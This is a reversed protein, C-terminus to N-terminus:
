ETKDGATFTFTVDKSDNDALTVTQTQRGLREHWAEVTYTGAPVNKLEFTGGGSTVAFYPHELIGAYASMWGHVDCKFRVMVEPAAFSTTNKMGQIPQGFNFGRNASAVANVNHLTPDSNSIDIPQGVQAGFVRPRYRCGQQDLTVVETPTDFYYAGLGDKIYVFVNDLGGNQVAYEELTITAGNAACNPDSETRVVPNAPVQGEITVRGALRGAKAADVRKADPPPTRQPPPQEGGCGAALALGLALSAALTRSPM